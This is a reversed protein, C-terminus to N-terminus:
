GTFATVEAAALVYPEEWCHVVDWRQGALSRLSPGYFFLHPSRTLYAGLEVVELNAPGAPADRELHIPRLDGQFFRPAAATVSWDGGGARAMEVALRRNLAVVYSHSLTLLRRPM